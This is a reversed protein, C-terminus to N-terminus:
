GLAHHQLGLILDQMPSGAHLKSRGSGTERERERDRMFLYVFDKFFFIFERGKFTSYYGM